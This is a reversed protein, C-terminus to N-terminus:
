DREARNLLAVGVGAVILAVVAGLVTAATWNFHPNLCDAPTPCPGQAPCSHECDGQASGVGWGVLIAVAFSATLLYLYRTRVRETHATETRRGHRRALQFTRWACTRCWGSGHWRRIAISRSAVASVHRTGYAALRRCCM